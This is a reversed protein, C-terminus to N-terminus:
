SKALLVAEGGDHQFGPMTIRRRAREVYGSRLYLRAAGTNGAFVIISLGPCGAAQALEDARALMAAGVGQGRFEPYVGLINVYWTGCALNELEQLAVFGAPFDPGIPVPEQPLAQGILGGVARDQAQFITANRFSFMGETRRARMLGVERATQGPLAMGEWVREPLGEGAMMVFDVLAPADEPTAQRHTLGPLTM